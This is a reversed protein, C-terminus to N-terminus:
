RGIGAARQSQAVDRVLAKFASASMAPSNDTPAQTQVGRAAGDHSLIAPATPRASRPVATAGTGDPVVNRIPQDSATHVRSMGSSDQKVLFHGQSWGVLPHVQMERLSEVFYVGTEGPEPVNMESVEMQMNGVRGGLYRLELFSDRYDGKVVEHIEFKVYTHISRPGTERAEVSVVRGEFVLESSAVIEDFGLQLLTTATAASPSSLLLFMLVSRIAMSM